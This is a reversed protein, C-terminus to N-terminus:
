DWGLCEVIIMVGIAIMANVHIDNDHLDAMEIEGPSAGIQKVASGRALSRGIPGIQGPHEPFFRSGM